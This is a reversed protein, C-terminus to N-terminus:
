CNKANAALTRLDNEYKEYIRQFATRNGRKCRLILLRDELM